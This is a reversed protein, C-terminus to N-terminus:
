KTVATCTYHQSNSFCNLRDMFRSTLLCDSTVEVVESLTLVNNLKLFGKRRALIVLRGAM